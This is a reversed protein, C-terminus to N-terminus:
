QAMLGGLVVRGVGALETKAGSRSAEEFERVIGGVIVKRLKGDAKTFSDALAPSCLGPNSVLSMLRTYAEILVDCLTAFTEYFDPDFPLSPTLLHTYEETGFSPDFFSSPISTATTSSASSNMSLAPGGSFSSTTNESITSPAISSTESSLNFSSQMPLGIENASSTRRGKTTHNSRKFMQPIRARSLGSSSSGDAPHLQQYSEFETLLTILSRLFEFPSSGPVNHIDLIAPISLGLLMYNTARRVLKAQQFSPLRSLDTKSFHVTNFWYVRGEHAKRLYDLTSIRKATM